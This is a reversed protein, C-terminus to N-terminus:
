SVSPQEENTSPEIVQKHIHQEKDAKIAKNANKVAQKVYQETETLFDVKGVKNMFQQEATAKSAPMRIFQSVDEGRSYAVLIDHLSPELQSTESTPYIVKERDHSVVYRNNRRIM